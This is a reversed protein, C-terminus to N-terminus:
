VIGLASWTRWPHSPSASRGVVSLEFWLLTRSAALDNAVSDRTMDLWTSDHRTMDLWTSDHRNMDLWTSDEVGTVRFDFSCTKLLWKTILGMTKLFPSFCSWQYYLMVSSLLSLLMYIYMYIYIYIMYWMYIYICMFMYVYICIYMYVYICIYMYVYICIYMHVNACKYM